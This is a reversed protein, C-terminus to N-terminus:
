KEDEDGTEADDEADMEAPDVGLLARIAEQPDLPALSVREDRDRKEGTM